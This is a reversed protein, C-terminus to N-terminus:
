RSAKLQRVEERLADIERRMEASEDPRVAHRGIPCLGTGIVRAAILLFGLCLLLGMVPFIWWFGWM